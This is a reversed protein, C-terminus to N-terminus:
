LKYGQYQYLEKVTRDKFKDYLEPYREKFGKFYSAQHVKISNLNLSDANIEDEIFFGPDGSGDGNPCGIQAILGPIIKFFHTGTYYLSKIKKEM